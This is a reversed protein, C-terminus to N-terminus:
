GRIKYYFYLAILGLVLGILAGIVIQQENSM